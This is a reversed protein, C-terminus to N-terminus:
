RRRRRHPTRRFRGEGEMHPTRNVGCMSQKHACRRGRLLTHLALLPRRASMRIFQTHYKGFGPQHKWTGMVTMTSAHHLYQGTTDCAQSTHSACQVIRQSPPPLAAWLYRVVGVHNNMAAQRIAYSGDAGPNVGRDGPLECLYRVVDVHGNDVALQTTSDGGDVGVGDDLM